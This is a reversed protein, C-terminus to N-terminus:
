RNKPPVYLFRVTQGITGFELPQRDSITVQLKVTNVLGHHFIYLM